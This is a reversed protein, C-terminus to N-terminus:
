GRRFQGRTFKDGSGQGEVGGSLRGRQYKESRRHLCTVATAQQDDTIGKELREECDCFCQGGRLTSSVQAPSQLARRPRNALWCTLGVQGEMISFGQACQDVQTKDVTSLCCGTWVVSNPM